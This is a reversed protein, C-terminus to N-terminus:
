SEVKYAPRAVSPWATMEDVAPNSMVDYRVLDMFDKFAEEPKGTKPNRGWREFAAILNKCNPHIVIKPRNLADIPKTKDYKLYEKVKLIGSEVESAPDMTYSDTFELGAEDFEQKLTLGGLTRRSNGFHRDLIRSDMRRGNERTKILAVYDSVALNSDKAGEFQFEPWEDYYHLTGTKDVFRWAIALPKGIAPDVIMGHSVGSPPIDFERVHVNRDFTKFIRGAFILPKGSKRAEREDPDFQSLIKEVQEHELTGNQGHQKCNEEADAYIVRIDKGNAKEFIGSVVWPNTNLSTMAGIAIGGKRLRAICEKYIDEPPPENFAVLGLNPGAFEAADQEYTMVDTVFGTDSKFQCPYSKGKRMEEYRGKPWLEKVATQFAGIDEVEKPTSAIRLRKPFPWKQFLKDQFCPAALAPWQIAGLLAVLLYTKGGGNGSGNVCILPYPERVLEAIFRAQGGNPKFYRLREYLRRRALELCIRDLQAQKDV